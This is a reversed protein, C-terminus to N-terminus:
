FQPLAAGMQTAMTGILKLIGEEGEFHVEFGHERPKVTLNIRDKTGELSAAMTSMTPDADTGQQPMLKILTALSGTFQVPPVTKDADAESRDIAAKLLELADKGMALYTRKEAIGIVLDIDDGLLEALSAGEEGPLPPVAARHFTVGKHTAVNKEFGYFGVQTELTEVFENVVKTVAAEDAVAGGAVLTYPGQGVLALGADIKGTAVTDDAIDVIKDVFEKVVAHVEEGGPIREEVMNKMQDRLTGVAEKAGAIDDQSLVLNVNLSAAADNVLFGGYKTKGESMKALGTAAETDPVVTMILDGLTKGSERDIKFGMTIQDTDELLAAISEMQQQALERALEQQKEDLQPLSSLDPLASAGPLADLGPIGGGEFGQELGVKIQEIALQRFIEPINQISVQVAFDYKENLGGLLKVPDKPLDQLFEAGMSAYTWDGSQKLYLAQGQLEVKWTDDGVDEAEGAVGGIAAVFKDLEKIPLFGLIQFSVGDTSAAMGWPKSKDLGVLGQGQTVLSLLGELGKGMDPTGSVQGVFDLDDIMEQYNALSVVILPKMEDQANVRASAALLLAVALASRFTKKM